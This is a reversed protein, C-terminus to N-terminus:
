WDDDAAFAEALEQIEPDHPWREALADVAARQVSWDSDDAARERLLAGTLPDDRWGGALAQIATRRVRSGVGGTVIRRLLAGTEPDDRWGAALHHVAGSRLQEDPDNDAIRRLLAATQPTRRGTVLAQVAAWRVYPEPDRRAVDHLLAVTDYHDRWCAGLTRVTTARVDAPTEAVALERLFSETGPADRWGAALALVATERAHSEGEGTAVARLLAAADPHGPWVSGVARLAAHRVPESAGSAALECLWPLTHRDTHWGAALARLAAVRVRDDPHTEARERLLMPTKADARRDVVLHKLEAHRPDDSPSPLASRVAPPGVRRTEARTLAQKAAEQVWTMGGTDAAISRLLATTRPDDPWGDVLIDFVITRLYPDPDRAARERVVAAADPDGPWCTAVCQVATRRVQADRDDTASRRVVSFTEPEDRWGDALAALAGRRLYADDDALCTLLWDLFSRDQRCTMALLRLSGHRINGDPNTEALERLLGAVEPDKPWEQILARVAEEQRAPTSGFVAQSVLSERFASDDRLLAAGVRAAPPVESWAFNEGERTVSLFQGHALYWDHYRRRISTNRTALRGLVPPLTEVVARTVPSGPHARQEVMHEILAIVADVVASCQDPLRGPDRVEGLCRAALVIHHPTESSSGPRQVFWLPDAALLHDVIRGALRPEVMGAVLVLTEHKAPDAWNEGYEQHVLAHESLSGEVTVQHQIDAAALYELLTRHVFGYTEDGFHSLISNRARFEDAMARALAMSRERPLRPHEHLYDALEETLDQYSLLSAAAGASGGRMRRAVRRLLELRESENLRGADEATQEDRQYRRPDWQAIFTSVAQEYVGRRDRPLDRQEGRQALMTLMLPNGALEGVSPSDDVAALLRERLRAAEAPQHPCALRYWRTVFTDIQARDLAQLRYTRFGARELEQRRYGIVRSTVVVRASPHREAFEAIEDALQERLRPDFVEDLGDFLVVARGGSRLYGELLDRPRGRVDTHYRHEVLDFLSSTRWRSDAYARLEVLLPLSGALPALVSDGDTAEALALALYRALTSKGAGPDGLLVIRQASEEALVQLVPRAPRDRYAQRVRDQSVDDGGGPRRDGGAEGAAPANGRQGDPPEVATREVAWPERRVTPPVFVDSLRLPPRVPDSQSALVAVEEYKRRLRRFYSQRATDFEPDQRTQAAARDKDLQRVLTMAADAASSAARSQSGEADLEHKHADAKDSIGRIVLAELDRTLQAAQAVGTAEMEIAVADNYHEHLHRAIASAADALVVDGVAVPEFHARGRLAHRAAQELRHSTRWTEPRVLFGEPTQKGGHIGYVKTAVVVDGVKIDKKLGGAVGVFLLARPRLWDHFRETLAAAALTGRGIEALAVYWSTGALRGREARTGSPHVLSELDTLHARVAEYEVPLATLIVAIPDGHGDADFPVGHSRTM